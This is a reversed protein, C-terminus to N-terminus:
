RNMWTNDIIDTSKEFKGNVIIDQLLATRCRLLSKLVEQGLTVQAKGRGQM